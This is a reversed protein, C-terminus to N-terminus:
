SAKEAKAPYKTGYDIWLEGGDPTWKAFEFTKINPGFVEGYWICGYVSLRKKGAAIAAADKPIFGKWPTMGADDLLQSQEEELVFIPDNILLSPYEPVEPLDDCTFEVAFSKLFAPSKGYNKVSIEMRPWQLDQVLPKDSSPIFRFRDIALIPISTGILVKASEDAATASVTAAKASILLNDSQQKLVAYAQASSVRAEIAQQEMLDAQRNITQLTTEMAIRQLRMEDAQVKIKRLTLIAALVGGFGIVVLAINPTNEASFLRKFYNEPVGESWQCEIHNGDQKIECTVVRSPPPAPIKALEADKKDSGPKPGQQQGSIPLVVAFCVAIALRKLM